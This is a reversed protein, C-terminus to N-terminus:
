KCLNCKGLFYGEAQRKVFRMLFSIISKETQKGDRQHEAQCPYPLAYQEGIKCLQRGKMM